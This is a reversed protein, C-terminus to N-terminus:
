FDVCSVELEEASWWSLSTGVQKVMLYRGTALKALKVTTSVGSQGSGSALVPTNDVIEASSVYVRYSRPYDNSNQGQQLNVQSLTVERGFDVKFWENGTQAKATTWRSVTGDVLNAVPADAAAHSAYAKWSSRKSIPLDACRPETPAGGAGDGAQADGAVGLMNGGGFADSGGAGGGSIRGGGGGATAVNGANGGVQSADAGAIEAM